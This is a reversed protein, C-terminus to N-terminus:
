RALVNKGGCRRHSPASSLVHFYSSAPVSFNGLVSLYRGTLLQIDYAPNGSHRSQGPAPLISLPVPFCFCQAIEMVAVKQKLVRRMDADETTQGDDGRCGKQAALPKGGCCGRVQGNKFDGSAYLAHQFELFCSCGIRFIRFGIIIANDLDDGGVM